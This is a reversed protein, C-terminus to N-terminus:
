VACCLANSYSCDDIPKDSVYLAAGRPDSQVYAHLGAEACVAAIRRRAGAEMDRVTYWYRPDHPDIYSARMRYGRAIGDDGRQVEGNCEREHWRHLTMEARRLISAQAFTLTIGRRYARAQLLETAQNANM